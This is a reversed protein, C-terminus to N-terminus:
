VGSHYTNSASYSTADTGAALTAASRTSHTGATLTIYNGALGPTKATITVVGLASTATCTYLLNPHANIKVAIAAADQTDTGTSLVQNNGTPTASGTFTESGVAFTDTATFGSFTLTGSSAVADGANVQVTAKCSRDGGAAAHFFNRLAVLEERVKTLPKLVKDVITQQTESGHTITITTQKGAM